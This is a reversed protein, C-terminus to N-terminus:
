AAAQEENPALPEGHYHMRTKCIHCIYPVGRREKKHQRSTLWGNTRCSCVYGYVKTTTRSNTTDCVHTRRPELGLKRMAGQWEPGHPKMRKKRSNLHRAILHALEHPIITKDFEEFNERLLIHNLRVHWHKHYAFGGTTGTLDFSISPMRFQCEFIVRAVEVWRRLSEKAREKLEPDVVPQARKIYPVEQPLGSDVM